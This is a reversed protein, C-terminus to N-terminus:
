QISKEGYALFVPYKNGQRDIKFITEVNTNKFNANQLWINFVNKDFGFHKVGALANDDHFSGDETELDAICIIGGPNLSDYVQNLFQEPQMFHHFTMSSVALDYQKGNLIDKDANFIITDVNNVNAKKAKEVLMDLMGKSNDIGTIQKVQTIFHMLLLGTGTGIDLVSMTKSLKVKNKIAKYINEALLLRRPEADWEKAINDFRNM